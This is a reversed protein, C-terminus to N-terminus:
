AMAVDTYGKILSSFQLLRTENIDFIKYYMVKIRSDTDLWRTKITISEQAIPFCNNMTNTRPYISTLPLYGWCRCYNEYFVDGESLILLNFSLGRTLRPSKFSM